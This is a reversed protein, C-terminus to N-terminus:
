HNDSGEPGRLLLAQQGWGEGPLQCSEKEALWSAPCPDRGKQTVAALLGSGRLAPPATAKHNHHHIVRCGRYNGNEGLLRKPLKVHNDEQHEECFQIFIHELTNVNEGAVDNFEPCKHDPKRM